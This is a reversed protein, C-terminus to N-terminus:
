LAIEDGCVGETPDLLLQGSVCLSFPQGAAPLTVTPRTVAAGWMLCSWPCPNSPGALLSPDPLFVGGGEPPPGVPTETFWTKGDM